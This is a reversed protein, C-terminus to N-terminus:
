QNDDRNVPGQFDFHVAEKLEQLSKDGQLLGENILDKYKRIYFDSKKLDEEQGKSAARYRYKWVNCLCFAAVIDNGFVLRMEDLCEIADERCYHKPHNIMDVEEKLEFYDKTQEPEFDFQWYNRKCRDCPFANLGLAANRCGDCTKLKEKRAESKFLRENLENAQRCYENMITM